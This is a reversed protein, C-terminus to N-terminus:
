REKEEEVDREIDKGGGMIEDGEMEEEREM